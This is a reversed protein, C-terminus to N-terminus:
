SWTPQILANTREMLRLKGDAVGALTAMSRGQKAMTNHPMFSGMFEFWPALKSKPQNDVSVTSSAMATV